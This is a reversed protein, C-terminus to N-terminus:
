SGGQDPSRADPYNTSGPFVASLASMLLFPLPFYYLLLPSGLFAGPYWGHLRGRPLLHDRLYLFAPYHGPADGGAPVTALFLLEPRLYDLLVFALLALGIADICAERTRATM